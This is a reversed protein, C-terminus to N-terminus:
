SWPTIYKEKDIALELCYLRCHELEDDAIVRM